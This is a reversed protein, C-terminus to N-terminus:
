WAGSGICAGFGLGRIVYYDRNEKGHGKLVGEIGCGSYHQWITSGMKRGMDMECFFQGSAMFGSIMSCSRYVTTEM